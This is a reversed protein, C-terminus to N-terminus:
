AVDDEGIFEILMGKTKLRRSVDEVMDFSINSLLIYIYGDEKIGIYDEARIVGILLTYLQKYDPKEEVIRLIVAPQNYLQKSKKAAELVKAFEQPVLIETDPLYKIGRLESDHLYARTLAGGM